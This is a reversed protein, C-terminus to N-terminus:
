DGVELGFRKHLAGTRIDNSTWSEESSDIQVLGFHRELLQIACRGLERTAPEGTADALLVVSPTAGVKATLPIWWSVLVNWTLDQEWEGTVVM